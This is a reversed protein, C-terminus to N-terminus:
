YNPLSYLYILNKQIRKEENPIKKKQNSLVAYHLMLNIQWLRLSRSLMNALALVNNLFHGPFRFICTKSDQWTMFTESGKYLHVMYEVFAGELPVILGLFDTM